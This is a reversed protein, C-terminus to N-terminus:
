WPSRPAGEDRPVRSRSSSPRSASISSAFGLPRRAGECRRWHPLRPPGGGPGARRALPGALIRRRGHCSATLFAALAEALTEPDAIRRAHEAALRGLTERLDPHRLLHRLVAELEAEEHPRSRDARDLGRPLGRRRGLRCHRALARRRGAGALGARSAAAAHPSRPGARRRRRGALTRLDPVSSADPVTARPLGVVVSVSRRPVRCALRRCSERVAHPPSLLRPLRPASSLRTRPFVWAGGRRGPRSRSPPPSSTRSSTRLSWTCRCGCREADGLRRAACAGPRATLAVVGLSAELLRDNLPFLAPLIEGRPRAGGPPGRLRRGRRLGAADRPPKRPAGRRSMEEALLITCAGAHLLVVGPAALPASSSPTPPTTGVHYLDLDAEPPTSPRALPAGRPAEDETVWVVGAFRAELHPVSLGRARRRVAAAPELGRAECLAETSGTSSTTGPSTRWARAGRRAWRGCAPRRCRGCLRRHRRGGGGPRAGGGARERRRERVRAPRGRRHHDRVPKRSLFAEVTVYGYDENLPAYYAARCGAYLDVLDDASVFGLLEVRDGVGLREIQKRLERGGRGRGAIKLRAGSKARAEHRRHGPRPAEPPGAPGRLLPLRRVRRLPLPGPPPAAPLAAHRAPRQLPLPPRGREALDHLHRPVRSLAATDMTASPRACRATRPRTASRATRTGFLDYAERHQHFLWAVKRPHRVLYSPFKTPIVLDVPTGNSERSTSCAGPWPRACSRRSAPVVQLAREGRGRPLRAAGPEGAARRGPDRRRGHHVAGPGRLRPGDEDASPRREELCTWGRACTRSRSTWASGAQREGGLPRPRHAEGPRARPGGAGGAPHPPARRDGGHPPRLHRAGRRLPPPHRRAPTSTPSSSTTSSCRARTSPAQAELRPGLLREVCAPSCGSLGRPRAPEARWAAQRGRRRPPRCSSCPAAGVGRAVAADADGAAARAARSGHRRRPARAGRVAERVRRLEDAVREREDSM